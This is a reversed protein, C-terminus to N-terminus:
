IGDPWREIRYVVCFLTNKYVKIYKSQHTGVKTFLVSGRSHHEV